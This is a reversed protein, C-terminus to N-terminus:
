SSLIDGKHISVNLTTKRLREYPSAKKRSTPTRWKLFTSSRGSETRIRKESFVVTIKVVWTKNVNETFSICCIGHGRPHVCFTSYHILFKGFFKLVVLSFLFQLPMAVKESLLQNFKELLPLFLPLKPCAHCSKKFHSFTAFELFNSMASVKRCAFMSLKGSLRSAHILLETVSRRRIMARNDAVKFNAMKAFNAM